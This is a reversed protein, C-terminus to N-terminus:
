ARMIEFFAPSSNKPMFRQQTPVQPVFRRADLIRM